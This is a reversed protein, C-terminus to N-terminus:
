NVFDESLVMLIFFRKLKVTIRAKAKDVSALVLVKTSCCREGVHHFGCSHLVFFKTLQTLGQAAAIPFHLDVSFEPKFFHKVSEIASPSQSSQMHWSKTVDLRLSLLASFQKIKNYLM